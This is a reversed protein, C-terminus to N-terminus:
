LVEHLWIRVVQMIDGKTYIKIACMEWSSHRRKMTHPTHGDTTDITVM